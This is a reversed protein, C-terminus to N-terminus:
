HIYKHDGALQVLSPWAFFANEQCSPSPSYLWPLVTQCQFRRFGLEWCGQRTNHLAVMLLFFRGSVLVVTTRKTNRRVSVKTNLKEKRVHTQGCVGCTESHHPPVVPVRHRSPIGM